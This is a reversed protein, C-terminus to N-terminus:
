KKVKVKVTTAASAQHLQDGLYTVTLTRKGQASRPLRVTATGDAALTVTKSLKVKKGKLKGGRYVVTVAGTPTFRASTVTITVTGKKTTRPKTAVTAAATTAQPLAVQAARVSARFPAAVKKPQGTASAYFHARLGATLQALFSPAFSGGEVPKGAPIGLAASEAGAPLVGTWAPTDALTAAGEAVTWDGTGAQFTTVVVRAPDTSAEPNGMAAANWASVVASLSGKGTRDVTVVPDAITVTYFTSGMNEFSGAVSGDYAMTTVGSAADYSGVGNPFTIVGDANETAGDTLVHTSLHDDFQQSIEWQLEPVAAVAQAPSPASLALATAAVGGATLAALVRRPNPRISM